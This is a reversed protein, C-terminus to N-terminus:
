SNEPMDMTALAFAAGPRDERASKLLGSITRAAFVPAVETAAALFCIGRAVNRMNSSSAWARCSTKFPLACAMTADAGKGSCCAMRLLSLRYRGRPPSVKVFSGMPKAM